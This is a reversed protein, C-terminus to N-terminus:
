VSHNVDYVQLAGLFIRSYLPSAKASSVRSIALSCEINSRPYGDLTFAESLVLVVLEVKWYKELIRINRTLIENLYM